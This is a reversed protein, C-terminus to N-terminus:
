SLVIEASFKGGTFERREGNPLRVYVSTAHPATIELSFKGDAVRWAVAVLGRPTCVQGRAHKLGCRHPAIEIEAFGPKRPVVGLIRTMFEIAPHASWAHCLSRWYSNEEVFTSLGYDVMEHWPGLFEPM